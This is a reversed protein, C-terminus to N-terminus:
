CKKASTPLKQCIKFCKKGTGNKTKLCDKSNKLLKKNDIYFTKKAIEALKLDKQFKIKPSKTQCKKVNATYKQLEEGQLQKFQKTTTSKKRAKQRRAKKPM